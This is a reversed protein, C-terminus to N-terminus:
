GKSNYKKVTLSNWVRLAETAQERKVPGLWPWVSEVVRHFEAASHTRWDWRQSHNPNKPAPRKRISGGFLEEMRELMEPHTQCVSVRIGRVRHGRPNTRVQGQFYGEGDLIGAAWALKENLPLDSYEKLLAREKCRLSITRMTTPWPTM